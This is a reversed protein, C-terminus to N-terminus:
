PETLGGHRLGDRGLPPEFRSVDRSSVEAEELGPSPPLLKEMRFRQTVGQELWTVEVVACTLGLPKSRLKAEWRYRGSEGRPSAEGGAIGALHLKQEALDAAGELRAAESGAQFSRSFASLVALIGVSFITLAVLVEILTFGGKPLGRPRSAGRLGRGGTTRNHICM